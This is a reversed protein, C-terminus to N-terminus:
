IGRCFISSNQEDELVETIAKVHFQLEGETYGKIKQM